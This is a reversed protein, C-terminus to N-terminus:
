ALIPVFRPHCAYFDKGCGAVDGIGCSMNQTVAKESSRGSPWHDNISIFLSWIFEMFYLNHKLVGRLRRLMEAPWDVSDREATAIGTAGQGEEWLRILRDPHDAM